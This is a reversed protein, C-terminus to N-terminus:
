KIHVHQYRQEISRVYGVLSCHLPECPVTIQTPCRTWDCLVATQTDHGRWGVGIRSWKRHHRFSQRFSRFVRRVLKPGIINGHEIRKVDVRARDQIPALERIQIEECERHSVIPAQHGEIAGYRSRGDNASLRSM